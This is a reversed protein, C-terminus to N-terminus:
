SGTSKRNWTDGHLVLGTQQKLRLFEQWYIESQSYQEESSAIESLFFASYLQITPRQRNKASEYSTLFSDRATALEGLYYKAVALLLHAVPHRRSNHDVMNVLDVACERAQTLASARETTEPPLLRAYSHLSGSLHGLASQVHEGAGIKYALDLACQHCKIGENHKNQRSFVLGLNLQYEFEAVPDGHFDAIERLENALGIAEEHLDVEPLIQLTAVIWDRKLAKSPILELHVQSARIHRLGSAYNGRIQAHSIAGIRAQWYTGSQPDPNQFAANLNAQDQDLPELTDNSDIDVQAALNLFYSQHQLVVNQLKPGSLQEQAIQRVSELFNFRAPQTEIQSNVLSRHVLEAIHEEACPNLTVARASHATFGGWFYALQGLFNLLDSDLDEFSSALAARLSRHKPSLTRQRSKLEVLNHDLQNLIEPISLTSIQAAALEIALPLGELRACIDVILPLHSEMPRFDPRSQATRQLFLATAPYHHLAVISIQDKSPYPLTGLRFITEGPLELAQRSTTVCRLLPNSPLAIGLLESAPEVLHDINDLILLTSAIEKLADLLQEKISRPNQTGAGLAKLIAEFFDHENTCDSLPVFITEFETTRASEISLRTKGIGATGTITVLRHSQLLSVLQSLTAQNPVYTTLFSPLSSSKQRPELDTSPQNTPESQKPAFPVLDELLLNYRVQFDFVWDDYIGPLLPAQMVAAAAPLNKRSLENEFEIVDCTTAGKRLGICNSVSTDLVSGYPFGSPELQKRLSALTVRFRNALAKQDTEGPWLAEILADRSCPKEHHLALFCLLSAVKKSRFQSQQAGHAPHLIPGGFLQIRWIPYTPHGLDQKSYIDSM